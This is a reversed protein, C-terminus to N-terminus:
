EINTATENHEHIKQDTETEHENADRPQLKCIKKVDVPQVAFAALVEPFEFVFARIESSAEDMGLAAYGLLVFSELSKVGFFFVLHPGINDLFM